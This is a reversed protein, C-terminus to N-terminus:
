RKGPITTPMRERKHIRMQLPGHPEIMEWTNHIDPQVRLDPFTPNPQPHFLREAHHHLSIRLVQLELLCMQDLRLTSTPTRLCARKSANQMTSPENSRISLSKTRVSSPRFNRTSSSKRERTVIQIISSPQFPTDNAIVDISRSRFPHIGLKKFQKKVDNPDAGQQLELDAYYDRTADAKVM